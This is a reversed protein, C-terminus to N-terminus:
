GVGLIYIRKLRAVRRSQVISHFTPTVQARYHQWHAWFLHHKPTLIATASHIKLLYVTGFLIIQYVFVKTSSIFKVGKLLPTKRPVVVMINSAHMLCSRSKLETCVNIFSPAIKHIHMCKARSSDKGSCTEQKGATFYLLTGPQKLGKVKPIQIVSQPIRYHRLV